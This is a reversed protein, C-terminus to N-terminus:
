QATVKLTLRGERVALEEIRGIPTIGSDSSAKLAGTIYQAAHGRAMDELTLGNLELASLKLEPAGREISFVGKLSGNAARDGIDSAIMSAAQWAGLDSLKFGFKLDVAEGDLRVDLKDRWNSGQILGRLEQETFSAEYPTGDRLAKAILEARDLAAKVVDQSVQEAAVPVVMEATYQQVASRMSRVSYYAIGGLVTTLLVAAILCGYSFCGPGSRRVPVMGSM